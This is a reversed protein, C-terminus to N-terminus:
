CDSERRRHSRAQKGAATAVGVALLQTVKHVDVVNTVHIKPEQIVGRCGAYEIGARTARLAEIVNGVGDNRPVALTFNAIHRKRLVKLTSVLTVRLGVQCM